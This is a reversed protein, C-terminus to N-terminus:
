RDDDQLGGLIGGELSLSNMWDHAFDCDGEGFCQFSANDFGLPIVGDQHAEGGMNKIASPLSSILCHSRNCCKRVRM